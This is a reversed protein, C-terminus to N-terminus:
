SVPVLEIRVDAIHWCWHLSFLRWNQLSFFASASFVTRIGNRLACLDRLHVRIQAQQACFKM